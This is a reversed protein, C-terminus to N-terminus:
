NLVSIVEMGMRYRESIGYREPTFGVEELLSFLRKRSFNHYHEIEVWYPNCKQDTSVRWVINDMNPMSLFLIGGKKLLRKAAVLCDTPFPTHELVDAMSIVSFQQDYEFECIDKNYCEYGIKKMAVVYQERLDLGVVDFGYEQATFILSGDGYGVDLWLGSKQYPLVKEIMHASVPRKREVDVGVIAQDKTNGLIIQMAEHSFYGDTFVHTCNLCKKWTIKPSLPPKYSIHDSCDGTMYEFIKHSNCLPCTKYIIRENDM